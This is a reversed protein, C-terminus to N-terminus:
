VLTFEGRVTGALALATREVQERDRGEVMVRILPETGSPRLLVRGESGVEAQAGRVAERITARDLPDLCGSVEVNILAQPYKCMGTRLERLPVDARRM